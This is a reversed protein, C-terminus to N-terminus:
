GGQCGSNFIAGLGSMLMIAIFLVNGVAAAAAFFHRRGWPPPDSHDLSRTELLIAIAAGESVLAFAIGLAMLVAEWLDVHIDWGKGAAGCAAVTLGFGVVHQGTWALAAGLLGLWQLLEAGRHRRTGALTGVATM